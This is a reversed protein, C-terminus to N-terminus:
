DIESQANGVRETENTIPLDIGWVTWLFSGRVSQSSLSNLEVMEAKDSYLNYVEYKGTSENYEAAIYHAGFLRFYLAIYADHDKSVNFPTEYHTVNAGLYNYLTVVDPNMGLTGGLNTSLFDYKRLAYYFDDFAINLGLIQNVNHMAIIGCGNKAISGLAGFTGASDSYDSQNNIIETGWTADKTSEAKVKDLYEAKEVKERITGIDSLYRKLQSATVDGSKVQREIFELIKRDGVPLKSKDVHLLDLIMRKEVPTFEVPEQKEPQSSDKPVTPTAVPTPGPQPLPTPTPNPTPTPRDMGLIKAALNGAVDRIRMRADSDMGQLSPLKSPNSPNQSNRAAEFNLGFAGSNRIASSNVANNIADAKQANYSALAKLSTSPNLLEWQEQDNLGSYKMAHLQQKTSLNEWGDIPFDNPLQSVLFAERKQRDNFGIGEGATGAASAPANGSPVVAGIGAHANGLSNDQVSSPGALKDAREMLALLKKNQPKTFDTNRM